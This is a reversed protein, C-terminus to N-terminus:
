QAALIKTVDKPKLAGPDSLLKTIVATPLPSSDILVDKLAKDDFPDAGYSSLDILELLVNSPLPTFSKVVDEVDKAAIKPDATVIENLQAPSLTGQDELVDVWM